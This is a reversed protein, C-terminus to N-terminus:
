GVISVWLLAPEFLAWDPLHLRFAVCDLHYKPSRKIDFLVLIRHRIRLTSNTV